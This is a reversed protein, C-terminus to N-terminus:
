GKECSLDDGCYERGAKYQSGAGNPRLFEKKMIGLGGPDTKFIDPLQRCLGGAARLYVDCFGALLQEAQGDGKGLAFIDVAVIHLDFGADIESLDFPGYM